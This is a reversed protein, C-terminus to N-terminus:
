GSRKIYVGRSRPHDPFCCCLDTLNSTFGARAPIIRSNGSHDHRRPRLGRALPSSGLCVRSLYHVHLYVGRSRPHDWGLVDSIVESPTFGARAPIIGNNSETLENIKPLGRALPSSGPRRARWRRPTSTFGARAPIIRCGIRGGQPRQLLGRALPSSGDYHCAAAELSAYVGRSRPHDTSRPWTTRTLRTFGARAPIIRYENELDDQM